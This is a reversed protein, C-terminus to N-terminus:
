FMLRHSALLRFSLPPPVPLIPSGFLFFMLLDAYKMTTWKLSTEPKKLYISNSVSDLHDVLMRVRPEHLVDGVPERVLQMM